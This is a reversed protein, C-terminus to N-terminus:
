KRTFSEIIQLIPKYVALIIICFTIIGLIVAVKKMNKRLEPRMKIMAIMPEKEVCYYDGEL